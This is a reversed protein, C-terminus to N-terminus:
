DGMRGVPLPDVARRTHTHEYQVCSFQCICLATSSSPSAIVALKTHCIYNSAIHIIRAIIYMAVFKRTKLGVDLYHIVGVISSCQFSIAFWVPM